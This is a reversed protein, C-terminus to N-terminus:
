REEAQLHAEGVQQYLDRLATVAQEALAFWRENQVCAPHSLVYTELNNAILSTRDLLEHCAFTGPKSQEAWGPGGDVVMQRILRKREERLNLVKSAM